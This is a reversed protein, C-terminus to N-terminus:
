DSGSLELWKGKYYYHVVSGKNVFVDEIGDHTIPPLNQEEAMFEKFNKNYQLIQDKEGIMIERSFGYQEDGVNQLYVDNPCSALETVKRTTSGEFILITSIKETSCLVAWDKQGKKIFEGRIVNHPLSEDYVQPIACGRSELSRRIDKPLRPFASPQLYRIETESYATISPLLLAAVIFFLKYTTTKNM